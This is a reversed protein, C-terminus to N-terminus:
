LPDGPGDQDDQGARDGGAQQPGASDAAAAATAAAAAATAAAAIAAAAAATAAAAASGAAAAAGTEAPAAPAATAASAPCSCFHPAGAATLQLLLQQLGWVAARTCATLPGPIGGQTSSALPTHPTDVRTHWTTGTLPRATPHLPHTASPPSIGHQM